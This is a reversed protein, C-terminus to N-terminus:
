KNEFYLVKCQIMYQAQMNEMDIMALNPMNQLNELKLIECKEGFDPFNKTDNQEDIWNMVGQAFNMADLNLDDTTTSFPRTLLITFGYEKKAGRRIYKKVVKEAYDTLFSFSYDGDSAYNFTPLQGVLEEIKPTFYAIMVDHKSLM